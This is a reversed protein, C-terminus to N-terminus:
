GRDWRYEPGGGTDTVVFGFAEPTVDTRRGFARVLVAVSPQTEAAAAFLEAPNAGLRTACDHFPALSVMLDRDDPRGARVYDALVRVLGLSLLESSKSRLANTPVEIM